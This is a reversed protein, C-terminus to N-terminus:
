SFVNDGDAPRVRWRAPEGLEGALPSASSTRAMLHLAGARVFGLRGLSLGRLEDPPVCVEVADVGWRALEGAALLVLQLMGVREPDLMAWDVLSGLFLAPFGFSSANEYRRSKVVLYAVVADHRDRVVLLARRDDPEATFASAVAWDIWASSRHTRVREAGRGFLPDLEPPVSSARECRLGRTGLSRALDIVGRHALLGADALPRVARAALGTGVYREAIPRIRRVLVWRPMSLGRWRLGTFVPLAERSIGCSGVTHGLVQQKLVLKVGLLSDRHEEPVYLASGWLVPVPGTETELRGALLDLRGIVRDGRTGVIQVPQDASGALPNSLVAARKAPAMGALGDPDHWRDPDLGGALEGRSVVHLAVRKRGTQSLVDGAVTM